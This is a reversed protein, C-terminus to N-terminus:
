EAVRYVGVGWAGIAFTDGEDLTDPLLIDAEGWKDDKSDLVKVAAPKEDYTFYSEKTSFNLLVLMENSRRLRRVALLKQAEDADVKMAKNDLNAFAPTTKRLALLERYFARLVAHKGRHRLEWHLKCDFFTQPDQADPPSAEPGHLEKFERRRGERVAEILAEDGHSVFYAFPAEEGYEEGMFLLPVYPSLIVTAAALKLREFCVLRSLREGRPRNGVQDHNQSCVVFQRAPRDKASNGHRRKRYKSYRWSYVFADRFATALHEVSGFDAYYGGLDGALLSQVSHHFDDSWQAHIGYGGQTVPTIVGAPV